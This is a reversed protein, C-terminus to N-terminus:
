GIHKEPYHFLQRTGRKAEYIADMRVFSTKDGKRLRLQPQREMFGRFWGDSIRDKRLVRKDCPTKIM